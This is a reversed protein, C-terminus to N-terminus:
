RTPIDEGEAAALHERGAGDHQLCIYFHHQRALRSKAVRVLVTRVIGRLADQALAEYDIHREGTMALLIGRPWGHRM